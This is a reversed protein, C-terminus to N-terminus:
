CVKPLWRGVENMYDLYDQGYMKILLGEEYSAMWNYFIFNATLAGLSLLSPRFILLSIMILMAGAYVPHRVWKFVGKRIVEPPDRKEGFVTKLGSRILYVALVLFAAALPIQIFLNRHQLVGWSLFLLESIKVSFFLLAGLIQGPHNAPHEKGIDERNHDHHPM